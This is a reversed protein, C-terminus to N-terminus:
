PAILRELKLALNSGKPLVALLDLAAHVLKQYADAHEHPSTGSQKSILVAEMGRAAVEYSRLAVGIADHDSRRFGRGLCEDLDRKTAVTSTPNSTPDCRQLRADLDSSYQHYAGDVFKATVTASVMARQTAKTTACGFVSMAIIGTIITRTLAM